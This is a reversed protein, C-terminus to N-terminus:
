YQIFLRQEEQKMSWRYEKYIVNKISKDLSTITNMLILAARYIAHSLTTKRENDVQIQVAQWHVVARHLLHLAM